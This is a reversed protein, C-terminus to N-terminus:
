RGLAVTLAGFLVGILTKSLEAILPVQNADAIGKTIAILYFTAALLLGGVYVWCAIVQFKQNNDPATGPKNSQVTPRLGLYPAPTTAPIAAPPSLTIGLVAGFNTSLVGGLIIVSNSLFDHISNDNQLSHIGALSIVYIFLIGALVVLLIILPKIANM